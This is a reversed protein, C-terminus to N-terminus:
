MWQLNNLYFLCHILIWIRFVLSVFPNKIIISKLIFIQWSLNIKKSKINNMGLRILL